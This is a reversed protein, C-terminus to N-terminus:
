KLVMDHTTEQCAAVPYTWISCVCNDKIELPVLSIYDGRAGFAYVLLDIYSKGFRTAEEDDWFELFVLKPYKYLDTTGYRESGKM